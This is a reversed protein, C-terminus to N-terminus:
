LVVFFVGPISSQFESMFNEFFLVFIYFTIINLLTQLLVYSIKFSGFTKNILLTTIIKDIYHGIIIAPIIYLVIKISFSLLHDHSRFTGFDFSKKIINILNMKNIYIFTYIYFKTERIHLDLIFLNNQDDNCIIYWGM